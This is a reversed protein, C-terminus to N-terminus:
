ILAIPRVPVGTANRLKPSCSIFCFEYIKDRSLEELQVYEMIHVGQQILLYHHVPQPHGPVSMSGDANEGDICSKDDGILIAGCEEVLYRAASIGLGAGRTREEPWGNGTRLFVADGCRLEVGQWKMCEECDEATIIYDPPLYEGGKYAAIDLMVGRMIMPPIKAADCKMPGLMSGYDAETYGNYWHNDEGSTWHCLADIHTGLHLPGIVMETNLGMCFRPDNHKEDLWEGEKYWNVSSHANMDKLKRRAAPSAYSLIEFNCHGNWISMGKYRETELDYIKGKKVLSLAKLVSDRSIENAAGLEDDDGYKGWINENLWSEDHYDKKM